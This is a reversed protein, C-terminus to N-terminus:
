PLEVCGAEYNKDPDGNVILHSLLKAMDGTDIQADPASFGDTGALDGCSLLEASPNQVKYNNGADGGGTILESLLKAMDGTDVKGDPPGFGATDAIDGLCACGGGGVANV